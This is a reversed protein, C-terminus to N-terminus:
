RSRRNLYHDPGYDETIVDNMEGGLPEFLVLRGSSPPQGQVSATMTALDFSSSQSRSYILTGKHKVVLYCNTTSVIEVWGILPIMTFVSDKWLSVEVNAPPIVRKSMPWMWYRFAVLWQVALVVILTRLLIGGLGLESSRVSLNCGRQAKSPKSVSERDM